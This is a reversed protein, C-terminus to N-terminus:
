VAAAVEAAWDDSTSFTSGVRQGSQSSAIRTLADPIIRDARSPTVRLAVLANSAAACMTPTLEASIAEAAVVSVDAVAIRAAVRM